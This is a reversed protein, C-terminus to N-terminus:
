LLRRPPARRRRLSACFQRLSERKQRAHQHRQVPGPRQPRPVRHGGEADGSDTHPSAPEAPEGRRAKGKGGRQKGLVVLEPLVPRLLTTVFAHKGQHADVGNRHGSGVTRDEIGSHAHQAARRWPLEAGADHPASRRPSQAGALAPRQQERQSCWAAKDIGAGHIELLQQKTLTQVRGCRDDVGSEVPQRSGRAEIEVPDALPQSFAYAGPHRLPIRRRQQRRKGDTVGRLHRALLPPDEVRRPRRM